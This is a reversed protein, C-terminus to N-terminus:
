VELMIREPDEALEKIRTLFLVAERGDIIRHDYSLATYMMPRIVVEGDIAVPRDQIRHMGLIASQPPNVIPTSMISGFVGGNSITFTGGQLDDPEISRDRAKEALNEIEQEVDAFGLIDADRVVPVVLGRETAVAVGINYYHNYVIDAGDVRANIMPFEELAEVSAKVFLSMMGLEVGYLKDFRENHKRRLRQWASMDIESFTTLLAARRQAEVLRDAIRRRIQSMPVREERKKEAASPKDSDTDDTQGELHRTVDEELIRGGPGTGDVDAPDLDNERLARMAAPSVRPKEDEAKDKDADHEKAKEQSKSKKTQKKEDGDDQSSAEDEREDKATGAEIIAEVDERDAREPKSDDDDAEESKDASASKKTSQDGEDTAHEADSAEEDAREDAKEESGDDKKGSKKKSSASTSGKKEKKDKEQQDADTSADSGNEDIRAIVEGVKATEGDKKLLEVIRGSVPSPFQMTAKDTELEALDEDVEVDDGESKLWQLIEVDTISEGVEPIKVETPM